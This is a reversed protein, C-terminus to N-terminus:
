LQCIVFCFETKLNYVKILIWYVTFEGEGERSGRFIGAKEQNYNEPQKRLELPSMQLLIRLVVVDSAYGPSRPFQLLRVFDWITEYCLHLGKQAM